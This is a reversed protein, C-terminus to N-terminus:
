YKYMVTYSDYAVAHVQINYKEASLRRVFKWRHQTDTFVAAHYHM